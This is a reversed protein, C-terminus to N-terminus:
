SKIHTLFTSRLLPKVFFFLYFIKIYLYRFIVFVVTVIVAFKQSIPEISKESKQSVYELADLIICRKTKKRLSRRKQHDFRMHPQELGATIRAAVIMLGARSSTRRPGFVVSHKSM